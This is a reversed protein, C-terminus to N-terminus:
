AEGGSVPQAAPLCLLAQRLFTCTAETSYNGDLEVSRVMNELIERAEQIEVFQEDTLAREDQEASQATRWRNLADKVVLKGVNPGLGHEACMAEIEDDTPEASQAPQPPAAYLLSNVPLPDGYWGIVGQDAGELVPATVEGVPEQGAVKEASLAARARVVSRCLAIAEQLIDWDAEFMQASREDNRLRDAFSQLLPVLSKAHMAVSKPAEREGMAGNAATLAVCAKWASRAWSDALPTFDARRSREQRLWADYSAPMAGNAADEGSPSTHNTTNM